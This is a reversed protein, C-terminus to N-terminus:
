TEKVRAERVEDAFAPDAKASTMEDLTRLLAADLEGTRSLVKEALLTEVIDAILFREPLHDEAMHAIPLDDADKRDDKVGLAVYEDERSKRSEVLEIIRGRTEPGQLLDRLRSIEKPGRSVYLGKLTKLWVLPPEAKELKKLIRKRKRRDKFWQRRTVLIQSWARVAVLLLVLLILAPSYILVRAVQVTAINPGLIIAILSAEHVQKSSSRFDPSDIGAIKGFPVLEPNSGEKHILLVDLLVFKGRELIVKPLIVRNQALRISTFAETLYASNSSSLSARLIQCDAPGTGFGWDSNQDYHSQLIDADGSNEIRVTMARLNLGAERLNRNGYLVVLDPLSKHIDFVNSDAVVDFLLKPQREHALAYIGLLMGVLTAAGVLLAWFAGTGFQKLREKISDLTKAEKLYRSARPIVSASNRLPGALRRAPGEFNSRFM